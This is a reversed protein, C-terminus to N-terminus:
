RIRERLARTGPRGEQQHNFMNLLASPYPLHQKEEGVWGDQSCFPLPKLRERVLLSYSVRM